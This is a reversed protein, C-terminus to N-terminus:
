VFFFVFFFFGSSFVCLGFQGEVDQIQLKLNVRGDSDFFFAASPFIFLILFSFLHIFLHRKLHQLKDASSDGCSRPLWVAADAGM